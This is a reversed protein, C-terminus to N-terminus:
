NRLYYLATFSMVISVTKSIFSKSRDTEVPNRFFFSIKTRSFIENKVIRLSTQSAITSDRREFDNIKSVTETVMETVASKPTM